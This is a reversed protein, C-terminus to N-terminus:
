GRILRIWVNDDVATFWYNGNYHSQGQFTGTIATGGYIGNVDWNTTLNLLGITTTDTIYQELLPIEVVPGGGTTQNGLMAAQSVDQMKDYTVSDPQITTAGSTVIAVDGSMPVSAAENSSNGVFVEGNNLAPTGGGGSIKIRTGM